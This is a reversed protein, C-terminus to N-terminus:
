PNKQKYLSDMDVTVSRWEKFQAVEVLEDGLRVFFILYQQENGGLTYSDALVVCDEERAVAVTYSKRCDFWKDKKLDKERSKIAELAKKKIM